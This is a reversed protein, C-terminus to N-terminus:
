KAEFNITEGFMRGTDQERVLLSCVYSGPGLTFHATYAGAAPAQSNDQVNAVIPGKAGANSGMRIQGVIDVRGSLSDLPM